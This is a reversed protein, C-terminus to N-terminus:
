QAEASPHPTPQPAASHEVGTNNVYGQPGAVYVAKRGCGSVGWSVCGNDYALQGNKGANMNGRQVCQFALQARPCSLEFSARDAFKDKSYEDLEPQSMREICGPLFPIAIILAAARWM